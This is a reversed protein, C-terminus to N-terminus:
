APFSRESYAFVINRKANAEHQHLHNVYDKYDSLAACNHRFRHWFYCVTSSFFPDFSGIRDGTYRVVAGVARSQRDSHLVHKNKRNDMLVYKMSRWTTFVRWYRSSPSPNPGSWLVLIHVIRSQLPRFYLARFLGLGKTTNRKFHSNAHMRDSRSDLVETSWDVIEPITLRWEM